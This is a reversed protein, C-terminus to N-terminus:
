CRKLMPVGKKQRYRGLPAYARWRQISLEKVDTKIDEIGERKEM